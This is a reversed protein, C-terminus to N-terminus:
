QLTLQSRMTVSEDSGANNLANNEYLNHLLLGLFSLLLVAELGSSMHHMLESLVEM